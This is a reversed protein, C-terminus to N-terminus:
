AEGSPDYEREGAMTMVMEGLGLLGDQDREEAVPFAVSFISVDDRRHLVDGRLDAYGAREMARAATTPPARLVNVLDELKLADHEIFAWAMMEVFLEELHHVFEQDLEV